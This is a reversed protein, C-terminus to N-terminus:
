PFALRFFRRGTANPLTLSKLMGSDVVGASPTWSGTTLLDSQQLIWGASPSPWSVFVTGGSGTISLAPAPPAAAVPAFDVGRFGTNAPASALVNFPGTLTGNFGSSDTLRILRISTTAYLSVVSGTASATLGRLGTVEGSGPVNGRAEWHGANLCFKQLGGTGAVDDAVYLTDVGPVGSDLDLLVFQYPSGTTLSPGGAVQTTVAGTVKPLGTGVQAFRFSGSGSTLFLQGNAIDLSRNNNSTSSVVTGAGSGGRTVYVVGSTGGGLWAGTGDETVACRINNASFATVTTTTDTVGNQDVFGVVRPVAAATSTGVSPTGVDADYGTLTLFRRDASRQLSGESTATGSATLRRQAGNVAVPLPLSQVLTGTPSYEDLFVPTAVTLLSGTGTGVRYIVVNGAAFPAAGAMPLGGTLFLAGLFFFCKMVFIPNLSIM